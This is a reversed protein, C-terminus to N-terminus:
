YDFKPGPYKESKWIPIVKPSASSRHNAGFGGEGKDSLENIVTGLVLSHTELFSQVYELNITGNSLGFIMTDTHRKIGMIRELAAELIEEYNEHSM